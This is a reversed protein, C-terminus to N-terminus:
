SGSAATKLEPLAPRPLADWPVTPCDGYLRDLDYYERAEAQMVHAVVSSFDVLVWWGLQAGEVPMHREGAEKLRVHIENEIARAHPRSQATVLVFYDVVKLRDAV